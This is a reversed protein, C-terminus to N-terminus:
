WSRCSRNLYNLSARGERRGLSRNNDVWDLKDILNARRLSRQAAPGDFQLFRGALAKRSGPDDSERSRAPARHHGRGAAREDIAPRRTLESASLRSTPRRSRSRARGRTPQRLTRRSCKQGSLGTARGVLLRAGKPAAHRVLQMYRYPWRRSFLVTLLMSLRM